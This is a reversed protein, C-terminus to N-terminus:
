RLVQVAIPQPDDNSSYSFGPECKRDDIMSPQVDWFPRIIYLGEDARYWTRLGEQLSVLDEHMKEGPRVGIEEVSCGRSETAAIANALDGVTASPIRPM